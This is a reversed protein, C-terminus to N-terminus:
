ATRSLIADIFAPVGDEDVRGARANAVDVVGQPSDGMAVSLHAWQLMQIDNWGDGFAITGCRPLDLQTRMRELASAKTVNEPAIDLWATWGIAYEVSQLGAQEVVQAFEEVNMHPQRAIVRCVPENLMEELPIVQQHGTLEGAPFPETVKFGVDTSEVGLLGDPMARRLAQLTDGPVFTQQDIVTYGLEEDPDLRVTVAGNSCVAYGSAIGLKTFVPMMAWVARGSALLVTAGLQNLREITAKMWETVSGDGQLITGDIDLAVMMQTPDKVLDAPLCDAACEKLEEFSGTPAGPAVFAGHGLGTPKTVPENTDTYQTVPSIPEPQATM